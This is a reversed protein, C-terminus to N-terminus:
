SSPVANPTAATKENEENIARCEDPDKPGLLAKFRKVPPDLTIEDNGEPDEPDIIKESANIILMVISEATTMHELIDPFYSANRHPYFLNLVEEKSLQRKM